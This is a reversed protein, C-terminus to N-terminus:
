RRPRTVAAPISARCHPCGVAIFRQALSVTHSRRCKPCTRTLHLVTAVSAAFGMLM